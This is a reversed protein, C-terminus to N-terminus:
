PGKSDIDKRSVKASMILSGSPEQDLEKTGAEVVKKIKNLEVLYIHM